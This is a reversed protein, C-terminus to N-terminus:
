IREMQVGIDMPKAYYYPATTIIGDIATEAYKEINELHIGGTALLRIDSYRSKLTKVAEFLADLSFKELQFLRVGRKAFLLADDLSDTEVAVTKELLAAKQISDITDFLKKEGLFKRHNQFLLFTESLGLRHPYGGGSVVAKMAIKKFGPPSKRTTFVPTGQAREVMARTYTAIGGAYELLNQCVKWAKHLSKANGEAEILITGAEFRTGSPLISVNRCGLKELIRKAEESCSVIGDSRGVFIITGAADDIGLADTTLDFYPLDEEIFRDIEHDTFFM